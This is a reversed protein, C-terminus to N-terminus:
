VHTHKFFGVIDHDSAETLDKTEGSHMNDATISVGKGRLSKIIMAIAYADVVSTLVMYGVELWEPAKTGPPAEQRDFVVTAGNAEILDERLQFAVKELAAPDDNGPLTIRLGFQGQTSM